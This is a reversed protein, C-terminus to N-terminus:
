VKFMYMRLKYCIYVQSLNICRHEVRLEVAAVALSANKLGVGHVSISARRWWSISTGVHVGQAVKRLLERGQNAGASSLWDVEGLESRHRRLKTPGSHQTQFGTRQTSPPFNKASM